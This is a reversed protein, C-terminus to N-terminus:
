KPNIKDSVTEQPEKLIYLYWYIPMAIINGFFLVVAWLAKMDNPIRTTHFLDVIYYTLLGGVMLLSLIHLPILVFFAVPPHSPPMGGHAFDAALYFAMVAVFLVFIFIYLIPWITALGLMIKSNRTM